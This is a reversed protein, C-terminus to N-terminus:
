CDLGSLAGLPWGPSGTLQSAGCPGTPSELTAPDWPLAARRSSGGQGMLQRWGEDLLAGTMKAHDEASDWPVASPDQSALDDPITEQNQRWRALDPISHHFSPQTSHLSTDRWTSGLVTCRLPDEDQQQKFM